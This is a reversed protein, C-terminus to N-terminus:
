PSSWVSAVWNEHATSADDEEVAEPPEPSGAGAGLEFAADSPDATSAVEEDSISSAGDSGLSLAPAPALILAAAIGLLTANRMDEEKARTGPM